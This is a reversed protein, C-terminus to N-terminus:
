VQQKLPRPISTLSGYFCKQYALRFLDSFDKNISVSPLAYISSEETTLPSLDIIQPSTRSPYRNKYLYVTSSWDEDENIERYKVKHPLCCSYLQYFM